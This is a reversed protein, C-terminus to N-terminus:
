VQWRNLLNNETIKKKKKKSPLNIVKQCVVEEYSHVKLSKM